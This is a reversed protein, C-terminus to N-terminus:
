ALSPCNPYGVSSERSRLVTPSIWLFTLLCLLRFTTERSRRAFFSLSVIAPQFNSSPLIRWTKLTRETMKSSWRWSNGKLGLQGYIGMYVNGVNAVIDRVRVGDNGVDM